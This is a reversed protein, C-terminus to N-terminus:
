VIASLLVRKWIAEQNLTEELVDEYRYYPGLVEVIQNNNNFSLQNFPIVIYNLYSIVVNGSPDMMYDGKVNYVKTAPAVCVYIYHDDGDQVFVMQGVTPYVPLNTVNNNSPDTIPTRKPLIVSNVSLDGDNSVYLLDKEKVENLGTINTASVLFGAKITDDFTTFNGNRTTKEIVMGVHGIEQSEMYLNRMEFSIDVGYRKNTFKAYNYMTQFSYNDSYRKVTLATFSGFQGEYMTDINETGRITANGSADLNPNEWLREFVAVPYKDNRVYLNQKIINSNTDHNFRYTYFINREDTNVGMFKNDPDIAIYSENKNNNNTRVSFEGVVETDGGLTVSPFVVTNLEKEVILIEIYSHDGYDDQQIVQNTCYIHAIFYQTMDEYTLIGYDGINLCKDNLTSKYNDFLNLIFSQYKLLTNNDIYNYVTDADPVFSGNYNNEYNSIDNNLTSTPSPVYEQQLVYVRSELYENNLTSTYVKMKYVNPVGYNNMDLKLKNFAMSYRPPSLSINNVNAVMVSLYNQHYELVNFFNSINPNSFYLLGYDQIDVGNRLQYYKTINEDLNDPNPVQQTFTNGALIKMGNVWKFTTFHLSNEFVFTEKLLHGIADVAKQVENKTQPNNITSIRNGFHYQWYEKLLYNYEVIFDDAIFGWTNDDSTVNERIFSLLSYYNKVKNIFTTNDDVNKFRYEITLDTSYDSSSPDTLVRKNYNVNKITKSLNKILRLIDYTSSDKVDLKTNPIEKGIAVNYINSITKNVNDIKYIIEENANRVTIDGSFSSDGKLTISNDIDLELNFGTGYSYYNGNNYQLSRCSMKKVKKIGDVWTYVIITQCGTIAGFHSVTQSMGNYTVQSTNFDNGDLYVENLKKNRWTPVIGHDIITGYHKNEDYNSSFMKIIDNENTAEFRTSFFYLNGRGMGFCDYFYDSSNIYDTIWNQTTDVIGGPQEFLKDYIVRQYTVLTAFNLYRNISSLKNAIEEMKQSYSNDIMIDTINLDSIVFYVYDTDTDDVIHRKIIARISCLYYYRNDNLLEIFTYIMDSESSPPDNSLLKTTKYGEIEPKMKNLENVIQSIKNFSSKELTVAGGAEVTKLFGNSDSAIKKIDTSSLINKLPARLIATGGFGPVHTITEPLSLDSLNTSDANFKNADVMAKITYFSEKINDTLNNIVTLVKNMSLNDIDLLAEVQSAEQNIGVKNFMTIIKSKNDVCMIDQEDYTQINLTGKIVTDGTVDMAKSIFQSYNMEKATWALKNNYKIILIIFMHYTNDAGNFLSFAIDGEELISYNTQLDNMIGEILKPYKLTSAPINCYVVNTGIFESYTPHYLCKTNNITANPLYEFIASEEYWKKIDPYDDNNLQLTTISTITPREYRLIYTIYSILDNFGFEVTAPDNTLNPLYNNLIISSGIEIIKQNPGTPYLLDPVYIKYYLQVNDGWKECLLKLKLEHNGYESLFKDLNTKERQAISILDSSPGGLHGNGIETFSKNNWASYTKWTYYYMADDLEQQNRPTNMIWFYDGDNVYMKEIIPNLITDYRREDAIEDKYKTMLKYLYNVREVATKISNAANILADTSLHVNKFPANFQIGTNDSM